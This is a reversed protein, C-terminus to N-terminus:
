KFFDRLDWIDVFVRLFCLDAIPVGLVRMKGFFCSFRRKLCFRSGVGPSKAFVSKPGGIKSQDRCPACIRM